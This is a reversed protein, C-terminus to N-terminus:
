YVKNLYFSKFCIILRHTKSPLQEVYTETTSPNNLLDWLHSRRSRYLSNNRHFRITNTPVYMSLITMQRGLCVLYKKCYRYLYKSHNGNLSFKIQNITVVADQTLSILDINKNFSSFIFNFFITGSPLLCCFSHKM